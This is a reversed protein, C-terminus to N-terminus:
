LMAIGIVTFKHTIRKLETLLSDFNTTNGDINIFYSSFQTINHNSQNHNPPQLQDIVRNLERTTYSQCQNLISSIQQITENEGEDDYFKDSEHNIM